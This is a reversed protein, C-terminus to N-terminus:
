NWYNSINKELRQKPIHNSDFWQHELLLMCKYGKSELLSVRDKWDQENYTFDSKIEVILNIDPLYFDTKLLGIKNEISKWYLM